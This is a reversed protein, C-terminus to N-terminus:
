DRRTSFGSPPPPPTPQRQAACCVLVFVSPRPASSLLARKGLHVVAAEISQLAQGISSAMNYVPVIISLSSIHPAGEGRGAGRGRQRRRRLRQRRARVLEDDWEREWAARQLQTSLPPGGRVRLSLRADSEAATRVVTVDIVAGSNASNDGGDPADSSSLIGPMLGNSSLPTPEKPLLPTAPAPPRSSAPGQPTAGIGRESQQPPPPPPPSPPPAPQSPPQEGKSARGRRLVEDVLLATGGRGTRKQGNRPVVAADVLQQLLMSEEQPSLVYDEPPWVRPPAMLDACLRAVLTTLLALVTLAM